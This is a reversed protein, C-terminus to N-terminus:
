KNQTILDINQQLLKCFVENDIEKKNESIINNTIDM